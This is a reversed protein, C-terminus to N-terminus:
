PDVIFDRAAKSRRNKEIIDSAVSLLHKSLLFALIGAYFHKSAQHSIELGLHAGVIGAVAEIM